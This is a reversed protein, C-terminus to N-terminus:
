RPLPGIAQGRWVTRSKRRDAEGLPMLRGFVVVLRGATSKLGAAGVALRSESQSEYAGGLALKMRRVMRVRETTSTILYYAMGAVILFFGSGAIWTAGINFAQAFM